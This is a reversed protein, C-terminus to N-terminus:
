RGPQGPAGSQPGSASQGGTAPKAVGLVKGDSLRIFAPTGAPVMGRQRAAAALNNPSELQSLDQTLRQEERDLATQQNQLDQLRFANENIRTNIVLIGLVGAIVLGLVVTVFPARPAAVPAPPAVRLRPAESGRSPRARDGLARATAARGGAGREPTVAPSRRPALAGSGTTPYEVDNTPSNQRYGTVRGGPRATVQQRRYPLTTM